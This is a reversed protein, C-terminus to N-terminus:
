IAPAIDVDGHVLIFRGFTTSILVDIAVNLEYSMYLLITLTITAIGVLKIVVTMLLWTNLLQYFTAVANLLDVGYCM